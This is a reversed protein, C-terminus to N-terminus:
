MLVSRSSGSWITLSPPTTRRSMPQTCALPPSFDIPIHQAFILSALIARQTSCEPLVMQGVGAATARALMEDRDEDFEEGYIHTHSDILQMSSRAVPSPISSPSFSSADKKESPSAARSRSLSRYHPARDRGRAYLRTGAKDYLARVEDIYARREEPTYTLIEQLRKLDEGQLQELTYLLLLTKKANVIDGGIPKGFTKEDGYVDLLDDQIQFALGLQIGVAYLARAQEVTAGGVLAGLELSSGLLVSTKLRIM